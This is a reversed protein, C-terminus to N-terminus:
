FTENRLHYLLIGAAVSVNLSEAQGYIPIYLNQDSNDLLEKNVGEGENGLILAFNKQPQIASYSSAQELATGFVPVGVRKFEHIWELLDGKVIPVHFISGQSARVVKSNYIDVSGKELIVGDLGVADATRILTGINGPDQVRDILLYKGLQPSLDTDTPLSCIAAVGQPSETECLEKMVSTTTLVLKGEDVVWSSPLIVEETMIMAHVEIGARLAEEILHHGEILFQGSKERGRKKHLKKWQKILENKSSDIRKM